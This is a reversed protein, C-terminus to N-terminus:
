PPVLLVGCSHVALNLHTDSLTWNDTSKDYIYISDVPPCCDSGTIRQGGPVIISQIEAVYVAGTFSRMGPIDALDTWSDLSPNYREVTETWYGTVVYLYEGDTTMTHGYRATKMNAKQEPATLDTKWKYFTQLSGSSDRGGSFWVYGGHVCSALRSTPEPLGLPGCARWSNSELCEMDTLTNSGDWGGGTYITNDLVFATAWRRGVNLKPEDVSSWIGTNMDLVAMRNSAEELTGDALEVQGGIIYVKRDMVVTSAFHVKYPISPASSLQKIDDSVIGLRQVEDTISDGHGGLVLVTWGEDPFLM